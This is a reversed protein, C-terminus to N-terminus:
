VYLVAIVSAPQGDVSECRVLGDADTAVRSVVLATCHPGVQLRSQSTTPVRRRLASVAPWASHKTPANM